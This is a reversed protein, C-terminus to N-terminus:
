YHVSLDQNCKFRVAASIPRNKRMTAICTVFSLQITTMKMAGYATYVMSRYAM